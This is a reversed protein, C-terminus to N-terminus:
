DKLGFLRLGYGRYKNNKISKLIQNWFFIRLLGVGVFDSNVDGRFYFGTKKLIGPVGEKWRWFEGNNIRLKWELNEELFDVLVAFDGRCFIQGSEDILEYIEGEVFDTNLFGEKLFCSM